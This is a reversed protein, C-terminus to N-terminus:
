TKKDSCYFNDVCLVEPGAELLREYTHSGLFDAAGTDLYRM